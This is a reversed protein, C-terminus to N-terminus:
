ARRGTPPGPAGDLLLRIAAPGVRGLYLNSNAAAEVADEDLCEFSEDPTHSLRGTASMTLAAHQAMASYDDDLRVSAPVGAMARYFNVRGVTAKAMETSASGPECGDYSGSWDMQPVERSREAEWALLVADRNTTDIWPEVITGAPEPTGVLLSSSSVLFAVM